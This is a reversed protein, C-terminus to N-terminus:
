SLAAGFYYKREVKMNGDIDFYKWNRNKKNQRYKGCSEISGNPFYFEWDSTKKGFSYSGCSVKTGKLNYKCYEGHKALNSTTKNWIHRVKFEYVKHLQGNKAYYKEIKNLNWDIKEILRNKSDYTTIVNGNEFTCTKYQFGNSYSYIWKGTYKPIDVYFFAADLSKFYHIGSGCVIHLNLNFAEKTKVVQGIIYDIQINGWEHLYHLPKENTQINLICEVMLENARFKAFKENVINSRKENTISENTYNLVIIISSGCRKYLKGNELVTKIADLDM